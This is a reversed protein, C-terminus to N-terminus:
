LLGWGAAVGLLFCGICGLTIKTYLDEIQKYIVYIEEDDYFDQVDEYIEQLIKM